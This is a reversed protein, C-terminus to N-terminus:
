PLHAIAQIEVKADREFLSRVGVLTMAPYYSGFRERWIPGLRKRGERYQKMKTVFVTMSAIADPAGGAAKVVAIVNDLAVAFQDVLDESPFRGQTDWGVQGGVHLVRGSGIRGNAYGKPAPWGSVIVEPIV